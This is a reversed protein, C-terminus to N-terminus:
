AVDDEVLFPGLAALEGGSVKSDGLMSLTIPKWEIAVPLTALDAVERRFDDMNAPLVSWVTPAAGSSLEKETAEREAGFKKILADRKEVFIREEVEILRVLKAIHYAQKASLVLAALARVSPAAAAVTGLDTEIANPNSPRKKM